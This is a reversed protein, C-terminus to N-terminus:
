IRVSEEEDLEGKSEAKEVGKALGVQKEAAEKAREEEKEQRERFEKEFDRSQWEAFEAADGKTWGQDKHRRSALKLWAKQRKQHEKEREKGPIYNGDPKLQKKLRALEHESLTEHEDSAELNLATFKQLFPEKSTQSEIEEKDSKGDDPKQASNKEASNKDDALNKGESSKQSLQQDDSASKQDNASKEEESKQDGKEEEGAKEEEDAKGEEDAPDDGNSNDSGFDQAADDADILGTGEGKYSSNIQSTKQLKRAVTLHQHESGFDNHSQFGGLQALCVALALSVTAAVWLRVPRPRAHRSTLFM